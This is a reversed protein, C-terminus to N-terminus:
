LYKLPQHHEKLSFQTSPYIGRRGEGLSFEACLPFYQRESVQHAYQAIRLGLSSPFHERNANTLAAPVWPVGTAKQVCVVKVSTQQGTLTPSMSVLGVGTAETVNRQLHLNVGKVIRAHLALHVNARLFLPLKENM